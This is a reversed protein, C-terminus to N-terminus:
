ANGLARVCVYVCVCVCVCKFMGWIVSVCKFMGWIVSVCATACVIWVFVCNCVSTGGSSVNGNEQLGVEYSNDGERASECLRKQSERVGMFM